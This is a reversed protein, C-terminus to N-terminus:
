SLINNHTPKVFDADFNKAQYAFRVISIVHKIKIDDSYFYLQIKNFM